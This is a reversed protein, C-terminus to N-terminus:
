EIEYKVSHPNPVNYKQLGQAERDVLYHRRNVKSIYQGYLLPVGLIIVFFHVVSGIVFDFESWETSSYKDSRLEQIHAGMILFEITKSPNLKWQEEQIRKWQALITANKRHSLGFLDFFFSGFRSFKNLLKRFGGIKFNILDIYNSDFQRERLYLIFALSFNALSKNLRNKECIENISNDDLTKAYEYIVKLEDIANREGPIWPVSLYKVKSNTKNKCVVTLRGTCRKKKNVFDTIVSSSELKKVQLYVDLTSRQGNFITENITKLNRQQVINKIVDKTSDNRDINIDNKNNEHQNVELLNDKNKKKWRLKALQEKLSFKKRSKSYEKIVALFHLQWIDVNNLSVRVIGGKLSVIYDYIKKVGNFPDEELKIEGWPFKPLIKSSYISYRDNLNPNVSLSYYYLLSSAVMLTDGDWYDTEIDFYYDGERNKQIPLFIGALIKGLPGRRAQTLMYYITVTSSGLSYATITTSASPSAVASYFSYVTHFNLLHIVLLFFILLRCVGGM